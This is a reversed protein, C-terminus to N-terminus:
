ITIDAPLISGNSHLRVTIQYRATFTANDESFKAVFKGFGQLRAQKRAVGM